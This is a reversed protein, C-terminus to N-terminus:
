WGILGPAHGHADKLRWYEGRAVAEQLVGKTVFDFCAARQGAGQVWDVLQSRAADQCHSLSSDPGNYQLAPWVEGVNLAHQGTTRDVYGQV